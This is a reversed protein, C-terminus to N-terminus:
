AFLAHEGDREVPAPVALEHRGQYPTEAIGPPCWIQFATTWWNASVLMPMFAVELLEQYPASPKPGIPDIASM